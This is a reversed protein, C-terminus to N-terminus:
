FCGTRSAPQKLLTCRSGNSNQKVHNGDRRVSKGKRNEPLRKLRMKARHTEQTSRGMLKVFFVYVASARNTAGLKGRVKEVHESVTKPSISLRNGIEKDTLGEAVLHIVEAERTTLKNPANSASM